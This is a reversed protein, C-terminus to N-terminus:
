IAASIGQNKILRRCNKCRLLNLLKNLDHMVQYAFTFGDNNNSVLKFLNHRRSVLAGNNTTTLVHAGNIDGLCGLGLKCCKHYTSVNVQVNFLLWCSRTLDNKRNLVEVDLILTTNLLYVAKIQINTGALNNTKCTNVAVALFLKGIGYVCQDFRLRAGNGNFTFLNLACGRFRDNVM